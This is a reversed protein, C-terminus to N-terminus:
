LLTDGIKPEIPPFRDAMDRGVMGKIIRDETIEDIGKTMTEISKGDRIVTIEDAVKSIENLKHSILISTVGNNKKLDLLLELLRDSDEENLAATPEDLILLKVDKSLAKAIEVLQQKGVGINSILTSPNENLSVKKLLEQARLTTHDWNIVGKTAQENGLFINEAISLYPILALEQHIIVIGLKESDKVNSFNCVNGDYEITGSFTNSPYVGSLVNMLTSKGAGNEGCIAHIDGKRVKLNIGNLAKVKGFTKVIDKMELIFDSM